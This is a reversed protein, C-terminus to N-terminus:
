CFGRTRDLFVPIDYILAEREFYDGYTELDGTVVAIDRYCYGEELVLKKIQICVAQVELAPNLAEEIFISSQEKEYVQSPYRFLNQELHAM